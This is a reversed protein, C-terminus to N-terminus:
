QGNLGGMKFINIPDDIEREEIKIYFSSVLGYGTTKEVSRPKSIIVDGAKDKILLDSVVGKGGSTNVFIKLLNKDFIEVKMIEAEKEVDDIIITATAVQSKIYEAVGILIKESLM